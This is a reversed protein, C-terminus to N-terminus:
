KTSMRRQTSEKKQEEKTDREKQRTSSPRTKDAPKNTITTEPASTINLAKNLRDTQKQSLFLDPTPVVGKDTAKRVGGKKYLTDGNSTHEAFYKLDNLSQMDNQAITNSIMTDIAITRDAKTIQNGSKELWYVLQGPNRAEMIYLSYDQPKLTGTVKRIFRGIRSVQYRTFDLAQWFGQISKRSSNKLARDYANRAKAYQQVEKYNATALSKSNKFIGLVLDTAMKGDKELQQVFAADSACITDILINWREEVSSQQAM